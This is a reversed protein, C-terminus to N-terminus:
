FPSLRKCPSAILAQRSGLHWQALDDLSPSATSIMGKWCHFGGPNQVAGRELNLDQEVWGDDIPLCQHADNQQIADEM